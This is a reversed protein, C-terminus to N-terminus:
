IRANGATPAGAAGLLEPDAGGASGSRTLGTTTAMRATAFKRSGSQSLPKRVPSATAPTAM